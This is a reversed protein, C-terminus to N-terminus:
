SEFEITNFKHCDETFTQGNTLNYVNKIDLLMLKFPSVLHHFELSAHANKTSKNNFCFSESFM